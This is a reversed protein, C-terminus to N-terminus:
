QYTSKQPVLSLLGNYSISFAFNQIAVNRSNFPRIPETFDESFIVPAMFIIDEALICLASPMSRRRVGNRSQTCVIIERIDAVLAVPICVANRSLVEIECNHVTGNVITKVEAKFILLRLKFIIVKLFDVIEDCSDYKLTYVVWM